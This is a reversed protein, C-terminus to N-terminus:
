DKKKELRWCGCTKSGGERLNNSTAIFQTGCDCRCLYRRHHNPDLEPLLGLVLIKGYRQGTKDIFQRM